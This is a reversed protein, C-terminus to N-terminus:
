YFICKVKHVNVITTTPKKTISLQKASEETAIAAIEDRNPHNPDGFHQEYWAGGMM